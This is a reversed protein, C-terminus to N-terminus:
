AVNSDGKYMMRIKEMDTEVIRSESDTLYDIKIFAVKSQNDILCVEGKREKQDEENDLDGGLDCVMDIQSSTLPTAKALYGKDQFDQKLLIITTAQKVISQTEKYGDFDKLAQTAAWPSVHRKRYTRYADDIFQRAEPYRFGRHIEDILMIMKQTKRPDASNKKIFNEQMFDM